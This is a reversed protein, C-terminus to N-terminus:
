TYKEPFSLRQKKSLLTIEHNYFFSVGDKGFICLVDYKRTNKSFSDKVKGRSFINYKRSFSISDKRIICSLDYEPATNKSLSDQWFMQLFYWTEVYKKSFSWRENETQLILDYKRPFSIDDKRIICSIDCELKIKKSLCDKCFMQFFFIHNKTGHLFREWDM